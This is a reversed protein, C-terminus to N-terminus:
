PKQAALWSVLPAYVKEPAGSGSVMGIHGLDVVRAEANPIRAALVRASAPPVIRDHSPIFILAPCQIRAPDIPTGGVTWQGKMPAGTAYWGFLIERAVNEALPVGDNLWDELEVFRQAEESAPDLNAFDRFKRGVLTPDLSAFFSQLLDVPACGHAKMMMEVAPQSANLLVRSADGGSQFDWPAALLVLGAVLDPRLVAPAVSLTGGLCYGVVIPAQGTLKKLEELAPILVRAIYDSVTFAREAEGPEGWDLLFTQTGSVVARMLSRDPALDLINSRNILSPVFVVPRTHASGGYGRLTAAGERWIPPPLARVRRHPHAQYARVGRVFSEMRMGIERAVADVFRVPELYATWPAELNEPNKGSVQAAVVHLPNLFSPTRLHPPLLSSAQSDGNWPMLGAFSMQLIWSEMAM